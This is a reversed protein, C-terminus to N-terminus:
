NRSVVRTWGVFVAFITEAVRMAEERKAARAAAAGEWGLAASETDMIAAACCHVMVPRERVQSAASVVQVHVKPMLLPDTLVGQVSTTM